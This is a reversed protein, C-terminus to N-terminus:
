NQWKNSKQLNETETLLQLNWPVHLGCVNKGQLPVIHDVHYKIKTDKELQKANTYFVLIQKFQEKTLWKPTAQIKHARRKAKNANEIDPHKHRFDCAWKNIKIRNVIKYNKITTKSLDTSYHEKSKIKNCNYCYDALKNWNRALIGYNEISSIGKCNNCHKYGYNFLFWDNLCVSKPKHELVGFVQRYKSSISNKNITDKLYSSPALEFQYLAELLQNTIDVKLYIAKNKVRSKIFKKYEEINFM